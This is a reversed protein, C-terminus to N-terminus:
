ERLGPEPDLLSGREGHTWLLSDKCKLAHKVFQDLDNLYVNAFFQSTFNGIPLGTGPPANALRKHPPVADLRARDGTM